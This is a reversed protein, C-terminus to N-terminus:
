KDFIQKKTFERYEPKRISRPIMWRDKVLESIEEVDLSVDYDPRADEGRLFEKTNKATELMFVGRPIGHKLIDIGHDRGLGIKSLGVRIIRIKRNPSLKLEEASVYPHNDEKLIEYLQEYHENTIHFSGYGKTYGLNKLELVVENDKRLKVRNYISSKGLASTIFISVLEPNKKAGSIIGKNNKYKERFIDGVERSALLCTVLKGGLLDNYPPLAGIVYGSMTNVLRERRGAQDWGIYTDRVNLNFVPDCLAAIGILKDNQKDRILFRIRRGFGATVPVSWVISSFRFLQGLKNNDVVVLEPSINEPIIDSGDAIHTDVFNQITNEGISKYIANREQLRHSSHMNRINEKSLDKNGDLYDIGISELHNLIDNKLQARDIM